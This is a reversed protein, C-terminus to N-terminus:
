LLSCIVGLFCGMRSVLVGMLGLDLWLFIVWIMKLVKLVGM